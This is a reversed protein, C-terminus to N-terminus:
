RAGCILYSLASKSAKRLMGGVGLGCRVPESFPLSYYSNPDAAELWDVDGRTLQDTRIVWGRHATSSPWSHRNVIMSINDSHLSTADEAEATMVQRLPSLRPLGVKNRRARAPKRETARVKNYNVNFQKWSTIYSQSIFGNGVAYNTIYNAVDGDDVEIRDNASRTESVWLGHPTYYKVVHGKMTDDINYRRLLQNILTFSNPADFDILVPDLYMNAQHLVTHIRLNLDSNTVKPKSM